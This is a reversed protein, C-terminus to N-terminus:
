PGISLKMHKRSQGPKCCSMLRIPKWLRGIGISWTSNQGDGILEGDVFSSFFRLERDEDEKKKKLLKRKIAVDFAKDFVVSRERHDVWWRVPIFGRKANGADRLWLEAGEPASEMADKHQELDLHSLVASFLRENRLEIDAVIRAAQNVYYVSSDPLHIEVWGNERLRPPTAAQHQEFSNRGPIPANPNFTYSTSTKQAKRILPQSESYIFHYLSFPRGTARTYQLSKSLTLVPVTPKPHASSSPITPVKQETIENPPKPHDFPPCM